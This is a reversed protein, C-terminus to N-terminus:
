AARRPRGRARNFNQETRALQKEEVTDFEQEPEKDTEASEIPEDNLYVRVADEVEDLLQNLEMQQAQARKFVDAVAKAAQEYASKKAKESVMIGDDALMCRFHRKKERNYRYVAGRVAFITKITAPVLTVGGKYGDLQEYVDQEVNPQSATRPM